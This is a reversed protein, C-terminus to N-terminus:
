RAPPPTPEETTHEPKQHPEAIPVLALDIGTTILLRAEQPTGEGQNVTLWFPKGENLAAAIETQLDDPDRGGISYTTGGYILNIRKM